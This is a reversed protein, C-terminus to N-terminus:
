FHSGFPEGSAEPRGKPASGAELAEGSGEQLPEPAAQAGWFNNSAAQLAGQPPFNISKVRRPSGRFPGPAAGPPWQPFMSFLSPWFPGPVVTCCKKPPCGQSVMMKPTTKTGRLAPGVM